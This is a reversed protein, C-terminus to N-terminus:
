HSSNRRTSKRDGDIRQSALNGGSAKGIEDIDAALFGIGCGGIHDAAGAAAPGVPDGDPRLVNGFVRRNDDIAHMAVLDTLLGTSGQPLSADVRAIQGSPDLFPALSSRFLPSDPFLTDPRTSRPPRRPM